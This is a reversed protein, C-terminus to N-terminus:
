NSSGETSNLESDSTTWSKIEIQNGTKDTEDTEYITVRNGNSDVVQESATKCGCLLSASLSSVMLLLLLKRIHTM